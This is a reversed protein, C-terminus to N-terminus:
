RGLLFSRYPGLMEGGTEFAGISLEQRRNKRTASFVRPCFERNSRSSLHSGKQKRPGKPHSAFIGLAFLPSSGAHDDGAFWVLQNGLYVGPHGDNKWRFGV